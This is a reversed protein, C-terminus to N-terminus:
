LLDGIDSDSDPGQSSPFDNALGAPLASMKGSGDAAVLVPVNFHRFVIGKGDATWTSFGTGPAEATLRARTGRLLDLTEIV